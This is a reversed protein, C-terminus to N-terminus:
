KGDQLDQRDPWRKQLGHVVRRREEWRRQWLNWPHQFAHVGQDDPDFRSIPGGSSWIEGSADVRVTHKGIIEGDPGKDRYETIEKTAPNLHGIGGFSVETFWVTGDPDPIVSHIGATENFPLPFRTLEATKPNLRVVENGRGYYPIWLM